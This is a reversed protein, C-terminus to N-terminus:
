SNSVDQVRVGGFRKQLEEDLEDATTAILILATKLEVPDLTDGVLTEQISISYTGEENKSAKLSGFDWDQGETAIYEFLENTGKVDMLIMAQVRVSVVGIGHERRKKVDDYASTVVHVATSEYFIILDGDDDLNVSNFVEKAFRNVKDRVVLLDSM